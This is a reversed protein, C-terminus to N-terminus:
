QSITNAAVNRQNSHLTRLEAQELQLKAHSARFDYPM